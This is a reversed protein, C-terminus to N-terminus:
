SDRSRRQRTSPEDTRTTKERVTRKRRKIIGNDTKEEEQPFIIQDGWLGSPWWIRNPWVEMIFPESDETDKYWYWHSPKIKPAEPIDTTWKM